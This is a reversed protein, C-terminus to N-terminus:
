FDEAVCLFVKAHHRRSMFLVLMLILFTDRRIQFFFLSTPHTFPHFLQIVPNLIHHRLRQILILLQPMLVETVDYRMHVEEVISRM